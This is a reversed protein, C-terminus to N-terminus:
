KDLGAALERIVDWALVVDEEKTYLQGVQFRIVYAGNYRTQTLYIRGDDNIVQLLEANLTDFEEQTRADPAGGTYRFTLLSLSPPTTLEFNPAQGIEKALNGLWQCHSRIMTRLAEVGYSRIVFWLKLARFRRGLPISWESYDIQSPNAQGQTKLYDPQIGLTRVLDDPNKVFHATCDFNTLLWKHPNFVFSDALEIGDILHRYEDCILASGAWAADVHFYLGHRRAVEGLARLNDMAGISTSGITAVLVAPRCGAALDAQVAADLADARMSNESDVDVRVLNTQGIGAIWIAKDISSHAQASCYVRIPPHAALGDQNGKFALARERGTLIAALTASSASDQIVGQFPEPLNLMNRLWGLVHTELETAAPSTQWLMCQAAMTATLYEAIVSPPSSNAPFYAFFRPHQWHTMGPMLVTDVDKFIDAMEEGQEPPNKPLQAAIDGPRAQARVPKEDVTELYNASWDAAHHAWKRFDGRDM